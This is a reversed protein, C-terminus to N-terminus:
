ANSHFNNKMRLIEWESVLRWQTFKSNKGPPRDIVNVSGYSFYPYTWRWLNSLVSGTLRFVRLIFKFDFDLFAHSVLGMLITTVIWVNGLSDKFPSNTIGRFINKIKRIYRGVPRWTLDNLPKVNVAVKSSLIKENCWRVPILKKRM